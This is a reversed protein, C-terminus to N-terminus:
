GSNVWEKYLRWEEEFNPTFIGAGLKEEIESSTFFRAEQIEQDQIKFPGNCRLKWTRVWETEIPSRWIYDYMFVLENSQIGLEEELERAAGQELSEGAAIHGGVSTDWKNPQIKKHAGRLQLLLHGSDNFVLIHAVRHILSPDQHCAERDAKGIINGQEDVLDLEEAM